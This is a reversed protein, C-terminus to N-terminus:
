GSRRREAGGWSKLQKGDLEKLQQASHEEVLDLGEKTISKLKTGDFENLQQGAYEAVLDM